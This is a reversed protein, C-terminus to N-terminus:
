KTITTLNNYLDIIKNDITSGVNWVIRNTKKKTKIEIFSYMNSPENFNLDKLEQAQKFLELTKKAEIKKLETEQAFLQCDATIKYTKIEGTFGGGSGFSIEEINTQSINKSSSCSFLIPLLILLYLKM